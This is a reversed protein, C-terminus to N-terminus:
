ANSFSLSSNIGSTSFYKRLCASQKFNGNFQFQPANHSFQRKFHNKWVFLRGLYGLLRCGNRSHRTPLQSMRSVIEGLCNRTMLFAVGGVILKSLSLNLCATLHRWRCTQFLDSTLYTLTHNGWSAKAVLVILTDFHFTM